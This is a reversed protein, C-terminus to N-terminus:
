PHDHDYGQNATALYPFHAKFPQDNADVGDGITNNPSLNCLGLAKELIPGYGCAVARLEIDIVDDTLRRGNPFGAFDGELAGLRSPKAAPPIAMNLRLLDAKHNGTFNLGPIGTLLVAVLDQRNTTPTDPLVPYLFNVLGALEPNLYHKLFQEEEAPDERNWFDKKGLPIIVENVLPNGLRSVQVMPGRNSESGDDELVRIKQRSASAYVGITARPDDKGTLPKHDRTLDTIPVQLAIAHVNFGGLTDIGKETPLPIRHATNFPRLGGLDFVAGLDVYFPDDTQGAFVTRGGPLSRVAASALADFNPTTRPGVNNPPTPIGSGLVEVMRGRRGSHEPQPDRGGAEAESSRGRRQEVRTVSYFQPMNWNPDSLSQIPGTAYLFTDKNRIKTEFRFQYTIDEEGDGDNDVHLEYLVDDGFAFFNPGAAPEEAPIYNAIFTVTDPKDPSVFAYVDTNDAEPDRSIQPAERHSSARGAQPRGATAAFALAVAGLVGLTLFTRKPLM